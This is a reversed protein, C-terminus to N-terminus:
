ASGLKSSDLVVKSLDRYLRRTSGCLRALGGGSGDLFFAKQAEDHQGMFVVEVWQVPGAVLFNVVMLGILFPITVPNQWTFYSMLGSSTLAVLGVATFLLSLWPVRQCVLTLAVVDSCLITGKKGSFRLTGPEYELPGTDDYLCWKFSQAVRGPSAFWIKDRVAAM